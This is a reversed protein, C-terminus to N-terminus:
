FQVTQNIWCGLKVTKIKAKPAFTINKLYDKSMNEATVKYRPEIAIAKLVTNSALKYLAKKELETTACENVANAYLNALFIYYAGNTPNNEIATLVMEKSKTKDSTSLISAITYCITAKELKNSELSASQIYFETGKEIKGTNMYYTALFYASRSTPKLQHLNLAISEFMPSSSCKNILTEGVSSLWDLDKNNSTFNFKIYPILNDCTLLGNMLSSMGQQVRNYEDTKFALKQINENVLSTVDIYKSILKQTTVQTKDSNNKDFYLKFYTYLAQPNVFTNKQLHFAQDLYTYIEDNADIKNDYLAMARKEYNGNTNAPFNKDYLDFHNILERVAKETNEPNAVEINYQLVKSELLYVSENYKACSTKIESWFENAKKYEKDAVFKYLQNEKEGCNVEQSIALQSFVLVFLVMLKAKM